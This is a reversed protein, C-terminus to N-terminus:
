YTREIMTLEEIIAVLNELSGAMSGGTIYKGNVVVNPVSNIQFRRAATAGQKLKTEVAFSNFTKRFVAQDVGFRQFFAALQDESALMNHKVHIEQFMPLHTKDLVGLIEATYYARAHLQAVENFMVPIRVFNVDAPKNAVYNQAYPEFSYCHHCTYMFFEAVEIQDPPSGTPQAPNVLQYHRGATFQTRLPAPVPTAQALKIEGSAQPEAASEGEGAEVAAAEEGTGALQGAANVPQEQLVAPEGAQQTAASDQASSPDTNDASCAVLPAIVIWTMLAIRKM